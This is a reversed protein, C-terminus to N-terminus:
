FMVWVWEEVFKRMEYEKYNVNQYNKCNRHRLHPCAPYLYQFNEKETAVIQNYRDIGVERDLYILSQAMHMM